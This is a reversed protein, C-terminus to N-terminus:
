RSICSVSLQLDYTMSYYYSVCRIVAKVHPQRLKNTTQLNTLRQSALHKLTYNCSKIVKINSCHLFLFTLINTYLLPFTFKNTTLNQLNSTVLAKHNVTQKQGTKTQRKDARM